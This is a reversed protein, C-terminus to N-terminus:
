KAGTRERCEQVSAHRVALRDRRGHVRLGLDGGSGPRRSSIRSLKPAEGPGELVQREGVGVDGVGDLLNAKMHMIGLFRVDGRHLADQAIQSPGQVEAEVQSARGGGGLQRDVHIRVPRTARICTPGGRAVSHEETVVEDGSGGLALVDDRSRASLSLTAGHGVTHSFSTSEPLEELLDMSRQSLASENVTVVDASHVEGDVGPLMLTHLM